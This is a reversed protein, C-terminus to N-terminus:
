ALGGIKKLVPILVERIKTVTLPKVIFYTAGRLVAEKVMNEHGLASVMIVKANPDIKKIETLTEIGDMRPMTIDLTVVDPKVQPYLKVAELGNSATGVVKCGMGEIFRKMQNIMFASDDVILFTFPSGDKKLGNFGDFAENSM